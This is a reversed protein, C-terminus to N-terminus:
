NDIGQDVSPHTCLVDKARTEDGVDVEVNMAEAEQCVGGDVEPAITVRVITAQVEGQVDV